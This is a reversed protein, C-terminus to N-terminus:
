HCENPRLVLPSRHDVARTQQDVEEFLVRTEKVKPRKFKFKNSSHKRQWLDFWVNAVKCEMWNESASAAATSLVPRWLCMVPRTVVPVPVEPIWTHSWVWMLGSSDGRSRRDGGTEEQLRNRVGKLDTHLSAPINVSSGTSILSCVCVCTLGPKKGIRRKRKVHKM